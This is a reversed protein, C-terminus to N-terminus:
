RTLAPLHSQLQTTPTSWKKWPVPRRKPSMVSSHTLFQFYVTQLTISLLFSLFWLPPCPVCSTSHSGHQMAAQNE